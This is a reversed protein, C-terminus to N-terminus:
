ELTSALIPAAVSENSLSDSHTSSGVSLSHVWKDGYSFLTKM